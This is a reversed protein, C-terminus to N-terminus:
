RRYGPCCEGLLRQPLKNLSGRGKRHRRGRRLVLIKTEEREDSSSMAGGACTGLGAEELGEGLECDGHTRGVLIPVELRVALQPQPDAEGM